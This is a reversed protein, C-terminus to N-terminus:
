PLPQMRSVQMPGSGVASRTMQKGQWESNKSQKLKNGLRRQVGATLALGQVTFSRARMLSSGFTRGLLTKGVGVGHVSMPLVAHQM